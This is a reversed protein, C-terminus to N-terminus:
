ANEKQEALEKLKLLLSNIERITPKFEDNEFYDSLRWEVERELMSQIEEISEQVTDNIM